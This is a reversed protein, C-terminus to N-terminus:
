PMDYILMYSGRKATTATANSVSQAFQVNLTGAVNVTITGHIEAHGATGTTAANAVVGGLATAQANGKIGNAASDVIWGDYIINTATLGGTAVMALQIGGAAADTWSIHVDFSYTRGAQLAVSLGTVTALTTTSTATVDATVRLEGAYNFWGGHNQYGTDISIVGTVPRSIGTNVGAPGWGLTHTNQMSPGSDMTAGASNLYLIDTGADQLRLPAAASNITVARATGTGGSQTGITLTNATTTWDVVGREYNTPATNTGVQDTTNYVRFGMATTPTNKNGMALVGVAADRFLGTDHNNYADSTSNNWGLVGSAYLGFGNFDQLLGMRAAGTTFGSHSPNGLNGTAIVAVASLTGSSDLVLQSTGGIQLDVLWSPNAAATSTINMFLPADFNVANNNWTGTINLAKANATITGLALTAQGSGAYTFGSDGGFAGSSNFQVDTNAGGPTGGGSANLTTGSMSLNTGLAIEQIVGAGSGAGRGLVVSASATNQMKAYTVAGASITTSLSGASTTVDGTLAPFQAALLTGSVDTGLAVAGFSPNGAANGHLVTTTTGLGVPTSPAAGAGGGLVLASAVLLASSLMTTTSNFYPIGGQTGSALGTGGQAVSAQGTLTHGANWHSQPCVEGAAIAAPDDPIVSVFAHTVTLAM